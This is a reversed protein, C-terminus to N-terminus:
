CYPQKPQVYTGPVTDVNWFTLDNMFLPNNGVQMTVHSQFQAASPRATSTTFIATGNVRFGLNSYGNGIAARNIFIELPVGFIPMTPTDYSNVSSGDDSAFSYRIVGNAGSGPIITLQMIVGSGGWGGTHNDAISVATKAVGDGPNILLMRMLMSFSGRNSVPPCATYASCKVPHFLKVSTAYQPWYKWGNSLGQVNSDPHEWSFATAGLDDTAPRTLPIGDGKWSFTRSAKYPDVICAEAGFLLATNLM